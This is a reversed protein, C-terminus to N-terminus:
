RQPNQQQRAYDGFSILSDAEPDWLQLKLCHNVAGLTLKVKVPNQLAPIAAMAEPLRYFPIRDNIHHIHHYGINGTLWHQWRPLDLYTSSQLAAHGYHWSGPMKFRLGPANHQVFFLLSGLIVAMWIPFILAWWTVGWGLLLGSAVILGVQAIPWLVATPTRVSSMFVPALFYPIWGLVMGPWSRVSRYIARALPGRREWEVTSYLPVQGDVHDDDIQCNKRHHTQHRERWVWPPYVYYISLPMMMWRGLRSHRFLARHQVDHFFIFVRVLLLSFVASLLPAIWIPPGLLLSVQLAAAILLTPLVAFWSRRRDEFAFRAAERATHVFRDASSASTPDTIIDTAASVPDAAAQPASPTPDLVVDVVTPEQDLVLSM